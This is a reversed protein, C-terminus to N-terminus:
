EKKEKWIMGFPITRAERCRPCIVIAELLGGGIGIAQLYFEPHKDNSAYHCVGCRFRLAHLKTKGM